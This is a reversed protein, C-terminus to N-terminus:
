AGPSARARPPKGSATRDAIPLFLEPVRAGSRRAAPADRRSALYARAREALWWPVRLVRLAFRPIEFLAGIRRVYSDDAATRPSGSLQWFALWVYTKSAVLVVPRFIGPVGDAWPRAVLFQRYAVGGLVSMM